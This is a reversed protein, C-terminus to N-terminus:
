QAIAIADQIEKLVSCQGDIIAADIASSDQHLRFRPRTHGFKKTLDLLVRQGDESGFVRRYVNALEAMEQMERRLKAEQKEPTTTTM